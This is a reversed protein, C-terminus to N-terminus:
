IKRIIYKIQPSLYNKLSYILDTFLMQIVSKAENLQNIDDNDLLIICRLCEGIAKEIFSSGFM